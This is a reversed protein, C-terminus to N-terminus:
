QIRRKYKLQSSALVFEAGSELAIVLDALFVESRHESARVYDLNMISSRFAVIKQGVIEPVLLDYLERQQAEFYALQSEEAEKRAAAIHDQSYLQALIEDAAKMRALAAEKSAATSM